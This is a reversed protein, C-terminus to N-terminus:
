VVYGKKKERRMVDFKSLTKKPPIVSFKRVPYGRIIEKKINM